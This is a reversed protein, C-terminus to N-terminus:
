QVAQQMVSNIMGAPIANGNGGLFMGTKAEAETPRPQSALPTLGIWALNRPEEM